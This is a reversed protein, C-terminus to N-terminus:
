LVVAVKPKPPKWEPLPVKARKLQKEWKKVGRLFNVYEKFALKFEGRSISEDGGFDLASFLAEFNSGVPCRFKLFGARLQEKSVKGDEGTDKYINVYEKDLESYALEALRQTNPLKPFVKVFADFTIRRNRQKITPDDRRPDMRLFQTGFAEDDLAMGLVDNLCHQCDKVNWTLRPFSVAFFAVKVLPELLSKDLPRVVVDAGPEILSAQHEDVVSLYEISDQGHKKRVAKLHGMADKRSLLAGAPTALAHHDSLCQWYEPSHPGFRKRADHLRRHSNNRIDLHQELTVPTSAKKGKNNKAKKKAKKRNKKRESASVLHTCTDGKGLARCADCSTPAEEESDSEDGDSDNSGDIGDISSSGRTATQHPAPAVAVTKTCLGFCRKQKVFKVPPPALDPNILANRKALARATEEATPDKDPEKYDGRELVEKKEQEAWIEAGNTGMIDHHWGHYKGLIEAKKAREEPTLPPKPPRAEEEEQKEEEPPGAPPALPPKPQRSGFSRVRNM